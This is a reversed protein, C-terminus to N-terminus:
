EPKTELNPQENPKTEEHLKKILGNYKSFDPLEERTGVGVHRLLDFSVNYLYTNARKPDISREVLGLLLLNRLIFSSNVGRVYEIDARYIPGAYMVISLTELAAPTLQEEFEEKTIYELLNAFAPKTAFQVKGDHVVLTLGREDAVLHEHLEKIGNNIDSDPVKLIKSIQAISIPEGYIFLLAEIAATINKTPKM